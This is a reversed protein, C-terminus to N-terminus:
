GQNKQLYSPSPLVSLQFSGRQLEAPVDFYWIRGDSGNIRYEVEPERNMVMPLSERTQRYIKKDEGLLTIEEKQSSLPNIRGPILQESINESFAYLEVALGKEGAPVARPVM